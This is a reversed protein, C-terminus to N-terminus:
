EALPDFTGLIGGNNYDQWGITQPIHKNSNQAGSALGLFYYKPRFTIYEDNQNADRADGKKEDVVLNAAYWTQLDAITTADRLDASVPRSAAAAEEYVSM